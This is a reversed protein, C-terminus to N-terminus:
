MASPTGSGNWSGRCRRSYIKLPTFLHSDSFPESPRSLNGIEGSMRRLIFVLQSDTGSVGSVTMSHAAHLRAKKPKRRAPSNDTGLSAAYSWFTWRFTLPMATSLGADGVTILTDILCDFVSGKRRPTSRNMPFVPVSRQGTFAM